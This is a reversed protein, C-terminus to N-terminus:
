GRDSERLSLPSASGGKLAKISTPLERQGRDDALTM